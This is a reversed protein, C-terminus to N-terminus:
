AAAPFKGREKDVFQRRNRGISLGYLCKAAITCDVVDDVDVRIM